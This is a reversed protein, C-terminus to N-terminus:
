WIKAGVRELPPSTLLTELKQRMWESLTERSGDSLVVVAEDDCDGVVLDVPYAAM